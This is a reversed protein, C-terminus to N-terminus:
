IAMARAVWQKWAKRDDTQTMLYEDIKLSADIAYIEKRTQALWTPKPRGVPRKTRRDFEALAQRAPTDEPLRMLHGLWNLRRRKITRSWPESHTKEHLDQNTIKDLKTVNLMCRLLARQFVDIKHELKATLTWLESNYLFISCIYANFIRKKTEINTRRSQLVHKFRNFTDITLGKRRQIDEETGLLSGLHKCKRWLVSGGRRITYEETKEENSTLNRNKLKTPITNKLKEIRGQNTTAWALDDAYQQDIELHNSTNPLSYSHDILHSPLNERSTERAIAYNHEREDVERDEILSKALYFTFLIASACDGQPSGINTKITEGTESNVRVQIEVDKLLLYFMHLEDDDLVEKLDEMLVDRKLMFM